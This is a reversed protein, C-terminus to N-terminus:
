ALSSQTRRQKRSRPHAAQLLAVVHDHGHSGATLIATVGETDAHHIGIENAGLLERVVGERGEQAAMILPSRRTNIQGANVDVACLTLVVLLPSALM